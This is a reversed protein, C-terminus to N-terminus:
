TDLIARFASPPEGTEGKFVHTFHSHDAFGLDLALRTLDKEGQAIREQAARVRLRNRYRHLTVGTQLRFIRCLHYPSCGSQAAVDGLLLRETSRTALLEKAAEVLRRHGLAVGVRRPSRALSARRHTTALAARAIDLVTEEIELADRWGRALSALLHRHQRHVAPENPGHSVDFCVSAKEASEADVSRLLDRVTAEELCINTCRDGGDAPHRVRYPEEPNLFLITNADSLVRQGRIEGVFVGSRPVIVTYHRAAEPASFGSRNSRCVVDDLRVTGGRFLPLFKLM